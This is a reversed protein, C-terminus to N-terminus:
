NRANITKIAWEVDQKTAVTDLKAEFDIFFGSLLEYFQNYQQVTM